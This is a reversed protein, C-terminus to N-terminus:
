VKGGSGLCRVQVREGRSEEIREASRVQTPYGEFSAFEQGERLASLAERGRRRREHLHVSLVAGGGKGEGHPERRYGPGVRDDPRRRIREGLPLRDLYRHM